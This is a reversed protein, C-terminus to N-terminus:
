NKQLMPLLLLLFHNTWNMYQLQDFHDGHFHSLIVLDLPPLQEINIAPNTLRRTYLGFGLNVKEHMHIFTPDTLITFGAYRILMTANGIFFISGTNLQGSSADISSSATSLIIEKTTRYMINGLIVEM